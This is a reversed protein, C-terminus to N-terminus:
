HVSGPHARPDAPRTRTLFFFPLLSGVALAAVAVGMPIATGTGAVGVFPAAAAGLVFQVVGLLGSASGARDAHDALALATANPMVLGMSAVVVLLCPLLAGLGADLLVTVLVGLGGAACSLLGYALLRRAGLTRVFRAGLRSAVMIGIANAAFVLSFVAPSVGYIDQLVFPSGAIYAVMAAFALGCSLTYGLFVRDHLLRGVVGFTRGLEAPHRRAPPLSEPLWAVTAAFLLGGIVCLGVFVGRWSTLHQLGAGLVPAVIPAAGSVVLMLGFFRALEAGAFRDRAVARAIVIGAAGALGQVLRLAILPWVSPALACLLSAAAYVTLGVLLPRRRGLVDSLPGVLLQGAALGLMCSTLTLQVASPSADLDSGLAPLAPLYADM